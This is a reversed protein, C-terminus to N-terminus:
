GFAQALTHFGDLAAEDVFHTQVIKLDIWRGRM